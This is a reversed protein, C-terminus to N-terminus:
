KRNKKCLKALFLYFADKEAPTMERVPPHIRITGKDTKIVKIPESNMKIRDNMVEGPIHRNREPIPVIRANATTTM